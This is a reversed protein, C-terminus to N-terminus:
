AIPTIETTGLKFLRYANTVDNGDRYMTLYDLALTDNDFMEYSQSWATNNNEQGAPIIILAYFSMAM